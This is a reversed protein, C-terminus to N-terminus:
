NNVNQSEIDEINRSDTHPIQKWKVKKFLAVISIPLYSFMFVPFMLSHKIKQWFTTKVRKRESILILM